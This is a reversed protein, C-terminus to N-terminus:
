NNNIVEVRVDDFYRLFAQEIFRTPAQISSGDNLLQIYDTGNTVIIERVEHKNLIVM